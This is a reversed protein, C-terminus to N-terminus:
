SRGGSRVRQNPVDQRRRPRVVLEDFRRVLRRTLLTAAIAYGILVMTAYAVYHLDLDLHRGPTRAAELLNAVHPYSLLADSALLPTCGVEFSQWKYPTAFVVLLPFVVGAYGINLFVLIVVTTTLARSTTRAKLSAHTGLAVVFWTLLGAILLALLLGLPHVAGAALGVLWFLSLLGGFGRLGWIAGVAKGRLIEWGTLPSSILGDWTDQEREVTVGSASAGAVALLWLGVYLPSIACLTNNLIVPASSRSNYGDHWIASFSHVVKEDFQGGLIVCVTLVITAPLVVLKTFVDTRAFHREKWLMADAGCEPRNLWRPRRLRSVFGFLRRSSEEQRRFTPRLQWVAILLFFAGAALQLGVMWLFPDLLSTGPGVTAALTSARIRGTFSIGILVVSLPNSAQAVVSIPEFWGYAQPFLFRFIPDAAPPIILWAIELLYAILVAQRVRRAFTSILVALSASFFTISCTALYAALVFDWDVGGFLTLLSLVPLGLLIFVGVHLLRAALKDLIIEGSSLRSAMLHPSPALSRLADAYSRM